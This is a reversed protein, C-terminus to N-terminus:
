VFSEGLVQELVAKCRRCRYQQKGKIVRNHRIASLKIEGPCQCKYEYESIGVKSVDLRHTVLAPIQFVSRMIAQWEKGHPKVKGYLQHCIIHAVEHPIVQDVFEATNDAFLSLNLKIHNKQLHASGAIKGRQNLSLSPLQFTHNFYSEAIVINNEIESNAIQLLADDNMQTTYM